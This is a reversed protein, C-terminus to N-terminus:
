AVASRSVGEQQITTREIELKKGYWTVYPEHGAIGHDSMLVGTAAVIGPPVLAFITEACQGRNKRSYASEAIYSEIFEFVM